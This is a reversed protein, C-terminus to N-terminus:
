HFYVRPVTFHLECNKTFSKPMIKQLSVMCSIYYANEDAKDQVYHRGKSQSCPAVNALM